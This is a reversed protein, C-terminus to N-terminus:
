RFYDYVHFTTNTLSPTVAPSPTLLPLLLRVSAVQVIYRVYRLIPRVKTSLLSPLVVRVTLVYIANSACAATELRCVDAGDRALDVQQLALGAFDTVAQALGRAPDMASRQLVAVHLHDGAHLVALHVVRAQVDGHIALVHHERHDVDNKAGALIRLAFQLGFQQGQAAGHVQDAPSRLRAARYPPEVRGTRLATKQCALLWGTALDDAIAIVPM